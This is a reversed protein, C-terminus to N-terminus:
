QNVEFYIGLNRFADRHTAVTDSGGWTIAASNYKGTLYVTGAKDGGSADVDAALVGYPYQSGDLNTSLLQKIKGSGAAITVNFADGVVFDTSGDAIVFKIQTAFTGGLAVDQGIVFGQPDVVRWTATNTGATICTVVYVGSQANALIPTTADLTFTGNGTNGGQKAAVSAAGLTVRGVAAGKVLNQGSLVTEARTVLLPTAGAFLNDYTLSEAM